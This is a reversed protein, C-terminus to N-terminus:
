DAKKRGPKVPKSAITEKSGNLKRKSASKFEIASARCEDLIGDAALFDEFKSGVHKRNM